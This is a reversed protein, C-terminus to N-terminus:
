RDANDDSADRHEEIVRDWEDLILDFQDYVIRRIERRLRPSLGVSWAEDISFLERDLWYKCQADGKRAHVHPPEQSENSYFFLRWGRIILITPL